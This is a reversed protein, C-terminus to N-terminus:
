SQMAIFPELKEEMAIAEYTVVVSSLTKVEIDNTTLDALLLIQLKILARQIMGLINFPGEKHRYLQDDEATVKKYVEEIKLSCM